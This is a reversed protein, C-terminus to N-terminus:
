PLAFVAGDDQDSSMVNRRLHDDNANAALSLTQRSLISRFNAVSVEILM